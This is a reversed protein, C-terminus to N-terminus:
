LPRVVKIGSLNRRPLVYEEITRSDIEVKGDNQSAHIFGVRGNEVYAMGVHAIDLGDVTSVFCIIDGSRIQRSAAAIGSKPIYTMPSKNLEEEVERIKKLDLASRPINDADALQKYSDPHSSMFHIPHDNVEGGLDLTIDKLVGDLRRIWETTYHVRDSYSYPPEKRYRTSAVNAVFADFDPTDGGTNRATRALNLCTEVFLICDTKTLFIRLRESQPDEDLTGAVYPTGLLSMAAMTMMQPMNMGGPTESDAKRLSDIIECALTKDAETTVHDVVPSEQCRASMAFLAMFLIMIRRM